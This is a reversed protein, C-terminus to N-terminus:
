GASSRAMPQAKWYTLSRWAWELPGFRFRKLWWVSAGIQFVWIGFVIPMTEARSLKGFLGLGLGSLGFFIFGCILSQMIYNTFAMRGIASLGIQLPRLVNHKCMLMVLGVWGFAVFMSGVYNYNWGAIFLHVIDFEHQTNSAVGTGIIPWGIAFGLATMLAYFKTSRTASFVGWKYLAMGLVFCGGVRWLGWMLIGSTQMWLIDPGRFAIRQAISGRMANVEREVLEPSIEFMEVIGGEREGTAEDLRGAWAEVAWPKVDTEEGLAAAAVSKEYEGRAFSFFKGNALNIAMGVPLLVMAIILLWKARLRWLPFVIMGVLAYMVLIDGEWIIWAHMMGFVFLWLMRFYHLGAARGRKELAKTAFLVIGAGFLMSFISMMKMDFLLHSGLWTVYDLGEFGGAAQPRFIARSSFAFIPINMVLIGCLAVGRLVDISAIRQAAKVPAALDAVAGPSSTQDVM